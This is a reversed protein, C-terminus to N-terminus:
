DTKTKEVGSGKIEEVFWQAGCLEDHSDLPRDEAAVQVSGDDLKRKKRGPGESVVDAELSPMNAAVEAAGRSEHSASPPELAPLIM